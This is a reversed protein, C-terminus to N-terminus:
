CKGHGPDLDEGVQIGQLVDFKSQGVQEIGTDAGM